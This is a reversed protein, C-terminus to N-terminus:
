SIGPPLEAVEYTTGAIAEAVVTALKAAQQDAFGSREIAELARESEWLSISVLESRERNAMIFLGLNGETQEVLPRISTRIIRLAQDMKNSLIGVRTILAIV